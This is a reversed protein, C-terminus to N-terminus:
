QEATARWLKEPTLPMDLHRIGHPALADHIANVIAPTSGITAAEGIGKVGLPNLPTATHTHVMTVSPIQHAHPVVYDMLTGTMLQGDGDYVIEEFLAQALGQAVGGMVQGDVLVPSIITGCDDAAVYRIVSVVGTDRDIEVFAIHTGFPATVAGPDFSATTELGPDMGEPLKGPDHAAQAIRAVSVLRGPVGRVSWAGDELELDDPSAELLHAAIRRMKERVLGAAKHVASGGVATGRSGGTGYGVGMLTDGHVVTVDDPSVGLADAVIQAFTTEQGQGHPSIGTYVTVSGGAAVRVAGIDWGFGCIEVYSALGVGAIRGAARLRDREALLAPYEIAREAADLAVAYDGTDFRAGGPTTYPFASPDIFNKRRVAGPDLRLERALLDIAREVYYAAEPRGAGRYAALFTKHTYVDLHESEVNPIEYCGTIMMATLGALFTLGYAGLDGIVTLRLGTVTGDRQAALSITAVQGRGHNTAVLSESRTEIWKIPRQARRALWVALADEPYLGFKCGFGGGVEPAIVRIQGEPLKFLKALEDRVGHAWQTSTWLTCVGSGREYQAVVGRTEMPNPALRQSVIRQSVVVEAAAFAEAANGRTVTGGRVVNGQRGPHVLPADPRMAAEPDIAAPLIDYHVDILALTDEALEQTAAVVVAVPEGAHRAVDTALIPRSPAAESDENAQGGETEGGGGGLRLGGLDEGTVVLVVGPCARAAEADIAMIRAHAHPSRLIAMFLMGPLTIDDVYTASGTILRPDERRRISAGIFSTSPM